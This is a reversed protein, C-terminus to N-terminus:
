RGDPTGHRGTSRPEGRRAAVPDEVAARHRPARPAPVAGEPARPAVPLPGSVPSASPVPILDPLPDSLPDPRATRDAVRPQGYPPTPRPRRRGTVDSGGAVTRGRTPGFSLASALGPDGSVARLVPRAPASERGPTATPPSPVAGGARVTFADTTADTTADAVPAPAVAPASAATIAPAPTVPPAPSTAPAPRAPRRARIAVRTPEGPVVETRAAREAPRVGERDHAGHGEGMPASRSRPRAPRVPVPVIEEVPAPVPVSAAPAPARRGRLHQAAASFLYLLGVLTWFAVIVLQVVTPPDSLMAIQVGAVALGAVGLVLAFRSRTTLQWRPRSPERAM